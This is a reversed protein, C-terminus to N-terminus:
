ASNLRYTKICLDRFNYFVDALLLTDSQVHLDHYQELNKINFKNFVEKAHRYDIESIEEMNFSSYLDSKDPLIEENFRDWDDMYEYPYIGKKLSLMFKDLNRNCFRYTSKLKETM